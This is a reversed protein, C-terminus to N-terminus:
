PSWILFNESDNANEAGFGLNVGGSLSTINIPGVSAGVCNTFDVTYATPYAINKTDMFDIQDWFVDTFVGNACNNIEVRSGSMEWNFASDIKINDFNKLEYFDELRVAYNTQSHMQSSLGNIFLSSKNAADVGRVLIGLNYYDYSVIQPWFTEDASSPDIILHGTTVGDGVIFSHHSSIQRVKLGKELTLTSGELISLDQFSFLCDSCNNPTGTIVVDSKSMRGAIWLRAGSNISIKGGDALATPNRFEGIVVKSSIEPQTAAGIPIVVGDFQDPYGNRGNICSSWNGPNLWDSDIAGSWICDAVTENFWNVLDNPDDEFISGYGYGSAGTMSISGAVPITLCTVSDMEVNHAKSNFHNVFDINSYDSDTFVGNSCNEFKFKNTLTDHYDEDFKVNDLALIEYNDKFHFGKADSSAYGNYLEVIANTFSISSKVGLFGNFVFGRFGWPSVNSFRVEEGPGAGGAVELHGATVGDGFDLSSTASMINIGPELRLTSDNVVYADYGYLDILCTTCTNSDGKITISSQFNIDSRINVKSGASITLTEQTGGPAIGYMEVNSTIVPDNTTATILLYDSKQPITSNCGSWNSTSTYANTLGLWTCTRSVGVKSSHVEVAPNFGDDISACIYYENSSILTTDWSYTDVASDETTNALLTGTNCAGSNATKYYLGISADEEVDADSWSINIGSAYPVVTLDNSPAPNTFSFTPLTNDTVTLVQTNWFDTVGVQDEVSACLFYAGPAVGTTDWSYTDIASDESISNVIQTNSNCTGSSALSYYFSIQADDDIDSDTWNISFINSELVTNSGGSPSTLTLSPAENYQVTVNTNTSVGSVTFTIKVSGVSLPNFVASKGGGQVTLNGASGELSWQVMTNSQFNGNDDRQIAFFQLDDDRTWIIPNSIESGTGDSATEMNLNLTGLVSNSKSVDHLEIHTESGTCSVFVMALISFYIHKLYKAKM